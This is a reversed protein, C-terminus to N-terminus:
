TAVTWISRRADYRLAADFYWFEHGSQQQWHQKLQDWITNTSRYFHRLTWSVCWFTSRENLAPFRNLHQWHANGSWWRETMDFPIFHIIIFLLDESFFVRQSFCRVVAFVCFWIRQTAVQKIHLSLSGKQGFSNGSSWNLGTVTCHAYMFNIAMKIGIVSSEVDLVVFVWAVWDFAIACM